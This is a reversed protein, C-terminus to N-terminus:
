KCENEGQKVWTQVSEEVGKLKMSPDDAWGRLTFSGGCLAMGNTLWTLAIVPNTAQRYDLVVDFHTTATHGARDTVRLTIFNDNTALPVDYAQDPVPPSHLSKM